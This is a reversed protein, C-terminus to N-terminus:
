SPSGGAQQQECFVVLDDIHKNMGKTIMGRILPLMLRAAFKRPTAQMDVTLECATGQADITFVTDWLTGGSETVMRVRRPEDWETIKLETQNERKGMRRTEMFRTGVGTKQDGLFEVRLVDPNSEPLGEVYAVTRFM